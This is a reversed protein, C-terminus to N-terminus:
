KIKHSWGANMKTWALKAPLPPEMVIEPLQTAMSGYSFYYCPEILLRERSPHHVNGVIVTNM